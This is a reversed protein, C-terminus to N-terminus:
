RKRWAAQDTSELRYKWPPKSESEGLIGVFVMTLTSRKFNASKYGLKLSFSRCYRPLETVPLPEESLVVDVFLDLVGM